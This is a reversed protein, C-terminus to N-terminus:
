LINRTNLGRNIRLSRSSPRVSPILDHAGDKWLLCSWLNMDRYPQGETTSEPWRGVRGHAIWRQILLWVRLCQIAMLKWFGKFVRSTKIFISVIGTNLYRRPNKREGEDWKTGPQLPLLCLENITSRPQEFNYHGQAVIWRLTLLTELPSSVTDQGGINWHTISKNDCVYGECM